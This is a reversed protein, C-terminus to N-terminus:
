KFEYPWHDIYAHFLLRWGYENFGPMYIMGARSVTAPSANALSDIEFILKM